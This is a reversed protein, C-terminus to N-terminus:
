RLDRFTARHEVPRDCEAAWARVDHLRRDRRQVGVLRAVQHLDGGEIALKGAEGARRDDLEASGDRDGLGVARLGPEVDGVAQDDLVVVVQM